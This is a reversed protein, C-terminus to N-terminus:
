RQNVTQGFEGLLVNLDSLDVAGDLNFDGVSSGSGFGSLLMGLDQLDVTGSWDIDAASSYRPEIVFIGRSSDTFRIQVAIRGRADRHAGLTTGYYVNNVIRIDSDEGTASIDIAQGRVVLPLLTSGPKYIWCGTHEVAGLGLGYDVYPAVILHEGVTPLVQTFNAYTANALGDVAAGSAAVRVAADGGVAFLGSVPTEVDLLKFDSTTYIRGTDAIISGYGRTFRGPQGQYDVQDGILLVLSLDDIPGRWIGYGGLGARAELVFTGDPLESLESLGSFISNTGPADDDETIAAILSSGERYEIRRLAGNETNDSKLLGMIIRKNGSAQKSSSFEFRRGPWGEVADEESLLVQDPDPGTILRRTSGRAVETGRIEAIYDYHGEPSVSYSTVRATYKEPEPAGSPIYPRDFIPIIEGNRILWNGTGQMAPPPNYPATFVASGDDGFVVNSTIRVLAVEDGNRLRVRDGGRVLLETAGDHWGWLGSTNLSFADGGELLGSFVVRGSPTMSPPTFNQFRAGATGAALDGTVAIRTLEFPCSVVESGGPCVGCFLGLGCGLIATRM